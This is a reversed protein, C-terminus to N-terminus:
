GIHGHVNEPLRPSPNTPLTCASFACPSSSPGRAGINLPLHPQLVQLEPAPSVSEAGSAGPEMSVRMAVHGYSLATKYFPSCHALNGLHFLNKDKRPKNPHLIFLMCFHDHQPGATM